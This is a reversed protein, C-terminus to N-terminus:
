PSRLLRVGARGPPPHPRRRRVSTFDQMNVIVSQRRAARIAAENCLAALEAGSFGRATAAVLPLRVDEDLRLKRTHVKLIALRGDEDPLNIRVQHSPVGAGRGGGSQALRLRAGSAM